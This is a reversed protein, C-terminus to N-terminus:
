NVKSFPSSSSLFGFGRQSSTWFNPKLILCSKNAHRGFLAWWISSLFEYIPIWTPSCKDPLLFAMKDVAKKDLVELLIESLDKIKM